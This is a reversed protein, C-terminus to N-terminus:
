DEEVINAVPTLCDGPAAGGNFILVNLAPTGAPTAATIDHGTDDWLEAVPFGSSGNWDSDNYPSGLGAFAIGNITTTEDSVSPIASRTHPPGGHQGDAGINDILTRRGLAPVPLALTYTLGVNSTFTAGALGVDYISVTGAGAGVLVMSAGEFLVPKPPNLWPDSGSVDAGTGKLVTVNYLGNGNAIALPVPAKFVTIVAGAWCPPPGSGVPVGPLIVVASKTPYVRQVMISSVPPTPPGPTIVAWYIYAAMVPAHVGSIEIGGAGRNRLSVGGTSYGSEQFVEDPRVTPLQNERQVMSNDQSATTGLDRNVDQAFGALVGTVVLMFLLGPLLLTSSRRKPSPSSISSTINQVKM